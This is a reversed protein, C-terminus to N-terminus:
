INNNFCKSLLNFNYSTNKIYFVKHIDNKDDYNIIMDPSFDNVLRVVKKLINNHNELLRKNNSNIDPLIFRLTENPTILHNNIGHTWDLQHLTNRIQYDFYPSLQLSISQRIMYRINDPIIGLNTIVMSNSHLDKEIKIIGSLYKKPIKILNLVENPLKDLSM